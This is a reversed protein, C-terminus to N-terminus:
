RIAQELDRFSLKLIVPVLCSDDNTAMDNALEGWRVCAIMSMDHLFLRHRGTGLWHHIGLVKHVTGPPM